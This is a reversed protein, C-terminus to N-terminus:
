IYTSVYEVSNVRIGRIGTYNSFLNSALTRPRSARMQLGITPAFGEQYDM